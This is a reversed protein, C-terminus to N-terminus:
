FHHIKWLQKTSTGNYLGMIIWDTITMISTPPPGVPKSGDGHNIINWFCVGNLCAFFSRSHISCEDLNLSGTLRRFPNWGAEVFEATWQPDDKLFMSSSYDIFNSPKSVDGLHNSLFSM